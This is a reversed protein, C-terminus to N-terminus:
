LQKLAGPPLWGEFAPLLENLRRVAEAECHQRAITQYMDCRAEWLQQATSARAVLARTREDRPLACDQLTDLARRRLSDIDPRAPQAHASGQSSAPAFAAQPRHWFMM